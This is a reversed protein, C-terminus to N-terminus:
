ARPTPEGAAAAQGALFGTAWAWQFNFGGIRGDCDLMEGILYLGPVRRSAMTRYDIEALPVGGATVEAHNWGRTGEVPLAFATLAHVLSRRQERSLEALVSAPDIASARLLTTALRDPLRAAFTRQLSRRPQEAAGTLLWREVQTFDEGPLFSCRMEAGLGAAHAIVWHRSADLVVPGSIGFHTWLLSGTRRDIRKGGAYTSLEAPHSLGSLEAHFMGGRLTLPALAPYTDTVTHGLRRVIEWGVGDSGSRPLSRGGTAVVVRAAALDGNGHRILFDGGEDRVIDSVRHNTLVQVGLAACRDLLAKVVTGARDTIPFLKGTEEEKLEVGLKAFWRVAAAADFAALVNRVVPQSGNFDDARVVVHTVNCRGGGSVLIKTGVKSAGELVVVRFRKWDDGGGRPSAGTPSGVEAAFIAAALGAAGAGIVAIDCRATVTIGDSQNESDDDIVRDPPRMAEITVVTAGQDVLRHLVDILKEIDAFYLGTTPEDLVYL